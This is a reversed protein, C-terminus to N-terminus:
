CSRWRTTCSRRARTTSARSLCCSHRPLLRTLGPFATCRLASALLHPQPLPAGRMPAPHHVAPQGRVGGASIPSACRLVAPDARSSALADCQGSERRKPAGRRVTSWSPRTRRGHRGWRSAPAGRSGRRRQRAAACRLAGPRPCRGCRGCGGGGREAHAVAGAAGRAV